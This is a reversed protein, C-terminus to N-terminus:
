PRRLVPINPNQHAVLPADVAEICKGIPLSGYLVRQWTQTEGGDVDPRLAYRGIHAITTPYSIARDIVAADATCWPVGAAVIEAAPRHDADDKGAAVASSFCGQEGARRDVPM